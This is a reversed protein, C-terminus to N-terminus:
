HEEKVKKNLIDHVEEGLRSEGEDETLDIQVSGYSDDLETIAIEVQEM